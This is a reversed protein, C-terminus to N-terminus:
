RIWLRIVSIENEDRIISCNSTLSNKLWRILEDEHLFSENSDGWQDDQCQFILARLKPFNEILDFIILRNEINILLVECRDDLLSQILSICEFDYFHGDNVMLDLRHISQNNISLQSLILYDITLSYLNIARNLLQCLRLISPDFENSHVISIIELSKLRNFNPIVSWLTDDFPFALELSYINPFQLGLRSLYNDFILNKVYNLSGDIPCTSKSLDFDYNVFEKFTYPLTYLQITRSQIQCDCRIFWQHEEIWFKTQFSEFLQEFEDHINKRVDFQYSMLLRFIKLQGIMEKWQYGTIYIDSIRIILKSLNRIKFIENSPDRITINLNQLHPTHQFLSNLCNFSLSHNEISLKQISSSTITLLSVFFDNLYCFQLKTLSWIHNMSIKAQEIDDNFHCKSINLYILNPCHILIENISHIHYLSLFQLNDFYFNYSLFFNLQNPTEDENSLHISIIQNTLLPLHVQCISDFDQKYISRFDLPCKRFHQYLLQNFRNNLQHFLHILEISNFYEFIDLLLENALSEM